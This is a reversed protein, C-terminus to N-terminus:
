QFKHQMMKLIILSVIVTGVTAGAAIFFQGAMSLSPFMYNMVGMGFLLGAVTTFGFVYIRYGWWGASHGYHGLFYVLIALIFFFIVDSSMDNDVRFKPIGARM